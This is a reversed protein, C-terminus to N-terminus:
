LWRQLFKPMIHANITKLMKADNPTYQSARTGFFAFFSFFDFFSYTLNRHSFSFPPYIKANNCKHPFSNSPPTLHRILICTYPCGFSMTSAHM